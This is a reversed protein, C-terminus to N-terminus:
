HKARVLFGELHMNEQFPMINNDVKAYIDFKLLLEELNVCIAIRYLRIRAATSGTFFVYRNPYASLYIEVAHAITALVMNRDGNASITLDNIEGNTDVDGFVLNYVDPYETSAFVVRKPIVGKPGISLFEFVSLSDRTYLNEYSEYKM